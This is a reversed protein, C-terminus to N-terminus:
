APLVECIWEQVFGAVHEGEGMREFGRLRFKGNGAAVLVPEFLRLLENSRCEQPKLLVAVCYRSDEKTMYYM